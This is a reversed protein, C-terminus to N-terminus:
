SCQMINIESECTPINQSWQRNVQCTRFPSGILMYGRDCTYRAVDGFSMGVSIHVTGNSPIDPQSCCYCLAVTCIVTYKIYRLVNIAICKYICGVGHM